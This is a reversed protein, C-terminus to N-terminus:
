WRSHDKSPDYRPYTDAETAMRPDPAPTGGLQKQPTNPNSGEAMEGQPTTHEYDYDYEDDDDDVEADKAHASEANVDVSMDEQSNTRRLALERKASQGRQMAAIENGGSGDRRNEDYIYGSRQRRCGKLRM